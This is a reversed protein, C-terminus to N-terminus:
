EINGKLKEIFYQRITLGQLSQLNYVQIAGSLADSQQQTMQGANVMAILDSTTPVYTNLWSYLTDNQIDEYITDTGYHEYEQFNISYTLSMQRMTNNATKVDPFVGMIILITGARQSLIIKINERRRKGVQIEDTVTKYYKEKEKFTGEINSEDLTGDEFYYRWTKIRKEIGKKSPPVTADNANQPIYTYIETVRLVPKGNYSYETRDILGDNTFHYFPELRIGSKLDTKYNISVLEKERTHTTTLSRLFHYGNKILDLEKQSGRKLAENIEESEM